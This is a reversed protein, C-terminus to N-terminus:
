RRPALASASSNRGPLTGNTLGPPRNAQTLAEDDATQEQRESAGGPPDPSRQNGQSNGDDNISGRKHHCPAAPKDDLAREIRTVLDFVGPRRPNATVVALLGIDRMLHVPVRGASVCRNAQGACRIISFEQARGPSFRSVIRAGGLLDFEVQHHRTRLSGRRQNSRSLTPEVRRWPM